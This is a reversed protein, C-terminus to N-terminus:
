HGGRAFSLYATWVFSVIHRVPLRLYLPVSFCVLDAPLWVRILDFEDKAFNKQYTEIGSGTWVSPDMSGSFVGAKFIYFTPLYVLTLVTLDLFTQAALAKLGEEDKLKDKWPQSTFADVDFLQKFINVQYLYQFGGLYIAGFGCFLLSREYDIEAIPTQAFIVQAILDALATKMTAIGINNAFPYQKAFQGYSLSNVKEDGIMDDHVSQSLQVNFDRNTVLQRKRKSPYAKTESRHPSILPAFSEVPSLCTSIWLIAAFRNM